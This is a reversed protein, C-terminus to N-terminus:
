PSEVMRRPGALSATPSRLRAPRRLRYERHLRRPLATQRKCAPQDAQRGIACALWTKGTGTQGTLILHEHAKLWEGQALSLLQRRDLGRQAAFDINEICADPFRM